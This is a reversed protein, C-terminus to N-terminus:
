YRILEIPNKRLYRIIPIGACLAACVLVIGAIVAEGQLSIMFNYQTVRFYIYAAIEYCVTAALISWLVIRLYGYSLIRIIRRRGVHFVQLYGIEAQRYYLDISIKCILFLVLLIAGAIMMFMATDAIYTIDMIRNEIVSLWVDYGTILFSLEEERSDDYIHTDHISIMHKSFWDSIEYPFKKMEEEPVMVCKEECVPYYNYESIIGYSNSQPSIVGVVQYENEFLSITMEQNEAIGLESAYPSSVLVEGNNQPFRGWDLWHGDYFASDEEEFLAGVQVDGDWLEYKDYVQIDFMDSVESIDSDDCDVVNYHYVQNTLKVYERRIDKRVYYATFVCLFLFTFICVDRVVRATKERRRVYKLDQGISKKQGHSGPVAAGTGKQQRGGSGSVVTGKQQREGSGPVAAGTDKQQRGMGGPSDGLRTDITGYTLSIVEDAIDDFIDKHTAVIVLKGLEKIKQFEEALKLANDYDLASTPEDAIIIDPEGLLSRVISVRQREGGSLTRPYCDLLKQIGFLQAYEEIKESSCHIFELNERVTLNAVLLSQQCIYGIKSRFRALERKNMATVSVSDCTYTGGYECDLGALINLLTSKGCGSVGKIVYLKNDEFTFNIGKLIEENIKKSLNEVQIM